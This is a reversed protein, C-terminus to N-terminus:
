MQCSKIAVLYVKKCPICYFAYPNGDSRSIPYQKLWEEKFECKYTAAGKMKKVASVMNFYYYYFHEHKQCKPISALQCFAFSIIIGFVHWINEWLLLACKM